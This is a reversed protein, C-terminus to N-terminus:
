EEFFIKAEFNTEMPGDKFQRLVVDTALQDTLNWDLSKLTAYGDGGKAM